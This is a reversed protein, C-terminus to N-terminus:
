GQDGSGAAVAAAGLAASGQWSPRSIKTDWGEALATAKSFRQERIPMELLM